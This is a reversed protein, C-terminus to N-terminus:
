DIWECITKAVGAGLVIFSKFPDFCVKVFQKLRVPDNHRITFTGYQFDFFPLRTPHTATVSDLTEGLALVVARKAAQLKIDSNQNPAHMARLRFTRERGLFLRQM